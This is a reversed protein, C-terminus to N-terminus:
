LKYKALIKQFKPDDQISKTYPDGPIWDIINMFGMKLATKQIIVRYGAEQVDGKITLIARIKM